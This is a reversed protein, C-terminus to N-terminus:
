FCYFLCLIFYCDYFKRDVQQLWTERFGSGIRCILEYLKLIYNPGGALFLGLPKSVIGAIGALLSTLTLVTVFPLILLNVLVSYTPFQYFFWLICPTTALQASLSVLLGDIAGHKIPLLAKLCPFIVAIGLVAGFSLLFGASFLQLPNQLLIILASLSLSTLMDYTKGFLRAILMITMMVVARNTSVSFNTLVGYSYICFISLLTAPIIPIKLKKLLWFLSLGILSIHLGSIALVHSIGNQQYLQKIEDELLYKEGLLMAIMTGAEKKPLISQYVELLKNKLKELLVPFQLCHGDIVTISEATMKFDINEIQYYLKENFQGPNTAQSFKKLTGYVTIRNGIQYQDFSHDQKDYCFVIVNECTYQKGKWLSVTNNKLYITKGSERNVIMRISGTLECESEQAFAEYLKPPALQDKLAFFGLSLLLPLCWLFKDQRGIVKGPWRYTFFYILLCLLMELIILIIVPLKLWALCMGALYACLMWVLPRKIM